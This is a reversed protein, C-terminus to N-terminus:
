KTCNFQDLDYRFEDSIQGLLYDAMVLLKSNEKTAQICSIYGAPIHLVDLTESELQFVFPNLTRSPHEWDDVKILQIQFSGSLASFWRQEVQHGQWGRKFVTSKNEIIYTRKVESADFNNNYKVNGRDDTHCNGKLLIPNM